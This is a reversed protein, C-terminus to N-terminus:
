TEYNTTIYACVQDKSVQVVEKRINKLDSCIEEICKGADQWLLVVLSLYVHVIIYIDQHM